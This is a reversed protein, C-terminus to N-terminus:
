YSYFDPHTILGVCVTRWGVIPDGAVHTASEFLWRWQLLAPSGAALERGHYRMALMRLNADVADPSTQVTDAPDVLSMLVRDKPLAALEREVLETCVFRAADGLFKHFLATPDRDESVQELFDPKGLTAGLQEFLDVEKGDKMEVWGVGGTARRIADSLQDLDMRRRVRHPAVADPAVGIPTGEGVNAPEPQMPTPKGPDSPDGGGPETVPPEATGGGPKEGPGEGGTSPGPAVTGPATPEDATTSGEGADTLCGALGACIGLLIMPNRLKM